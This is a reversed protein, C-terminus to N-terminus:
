NREGKGMTIARKRAGFNPHSPVPSHPPRAWFLEGGLGRDGYDSLLVNIDNIVLDLIGQLLNLGAHLLRLLRHTGMGGGWFAEPGM